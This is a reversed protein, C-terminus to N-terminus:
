TFIIKIMHKQNYTYSINFGYLETISSVISLGLGSSSNMSSGSTYRDFININKDIPEGNNTMQLSNGALRITIKGKPTNYKIANKLLNSVMIRALEPHMHLIIDQDKSVEISLEKYEILDEYLELYEEIVSGLNVEEEQGYQKNKIKSLLLLSSNLNKMRTIHSLITSLEIAQHQDTDKSNLLLEIKGAIISLPTQLEHSVNEIFNKQENYVKINEELLTKISRNLRQYETINTKPLEIMENRNLSFGDLNKLLQYFPKNSKKVIIKSAVLLILGLSLWLVILLTLMSKIIDETEVTSTFFEIIYYKDNPYCRFASRLMRVEEYENESKFFIETVIYEEKMGIAEEATIERIHMNIPQHEQMSTVFDPDQNAQIVFEQKLNSLGEDLDDYIERMQVFFYVTSWILLIGIFLITLRINLYNALKM